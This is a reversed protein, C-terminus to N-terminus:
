VSRNVKRRGTLLGAAKRLVYWLTAALIALCALPVFIALFATM